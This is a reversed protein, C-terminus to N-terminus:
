CSPWRFSPKIPKTHTMWIFVKELQRRRPDFWKVPSLRNAICFNLIQGSLTQFTLFDDVIFALVLIFIFSIVSMFVAEASFSPTPPYFKKERQTQVVSKKLPTEAM